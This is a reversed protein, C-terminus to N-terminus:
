LALLSVDVGSAASSCIAEDYGGLEADRTADELYLSQFLFALRYTDLPILADVSVLLKRDVLRYPAFRAVQQLWM